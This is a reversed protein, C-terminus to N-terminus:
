AALWARATLWSRAPPAVTTMVVVVIMMMRSTTMRIMTRRQTRRSAIRRPRRATRPPRNAADRRRALSGKERERDEASRLAQAAAGGGRHHHAEPARAVDVGVGKRRQHIAGGPANARGREDARQLRAAPCGDAPAPSRARKRASTPARGDPSRASRPDDRGSDSRPPRTAAGLPVPRRQVIRRARGDRTSPDQLRRRASPSLRASSAPGADAASSRTPDQNRAPADVETRAQGLSNASRFDLGVGTVVRPALRAHVLPDREGAPPCPQPAARARPAGRGRTGAGARRPPLQGSEVGQVLVPVGDRWARRATAFSRVVVCAHRTRAVASYRRWWSRAASAAQFPMPSGRVSRTSMWPSACM